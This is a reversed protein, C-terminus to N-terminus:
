VKSVRDAYYESKFSEFRAFLDANVESIEKEYIFAVNGTCLDQLPAYSGNMYNSFAQKVMRTMVEDYTKM